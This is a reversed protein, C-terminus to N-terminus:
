EVLCIIRTPASTGANWVINTVGNGGSTMLLTVVQSAISADGNGQLDTLGGAVYLTGTINYGGNGAILCTASASRDQFYSIGKYIGSTPPSLTVSGQGTISLGATSFIMVGAAYLSGQGAFTFAGGDMYYIGPSMTVTTQGSFSLGGVYRGPQLTINNGSPVAQVSMTKPDPQPLYALPDPVPPQGTLVTGNFTGSYGPNTGTIYIAKGVDSIVANGATSAAMSNNSDVIINANRVFTNGNGNAFLANAATPHLVIVGNNFPAWLARAVARARVPLNGSGFVGSFGRSQNFQIIVEAYGPTDVFLGSKPPCNVTVVSTSGDNSFGNAAANALGAAQATDKPDKGADANWDAFLQEAAALAAADAAAQCRRRQDLLLGGDIVIAVIGMMVM